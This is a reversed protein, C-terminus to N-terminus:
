ALATDVTGPLRAKKPNWPTPAVDRERVKLREKMGPGPVYGRPIFM